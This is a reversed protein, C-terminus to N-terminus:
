RVPQNLPPQDARVAVDQQRERRLKELLAATHDVWDVNPPVYDFQSPAIPVDFAVESFELVATPQRSLQYVPPPANMGAALLSEMRRYEVRYPFLDAQGFLLLVEGPLRDPISAAGEPERSEGRRIQSEIRSERDGVLAALKDSRWRGVVAFYPQSAAGASEPAVLRMAQPPFFTFNDRLAVLLRPVGGCRSIMDNQAPSWNAQGPRIEEYRGAALVPDSRLKRLDVRTVTRGTPLVRDLWLFRGNSIQSLRIEPGIQLELRVRLDDGAGQQWYSGAGYLQQRNITTQHRLGAAVSPRRELRAVAEVLLRDGASLEDAAPSAAANSESATAPAVPLSAQMGAVAAPVAILARAVDRRILATLRRLSNKM